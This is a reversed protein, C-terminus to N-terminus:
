GRVLRQLSPRLWLLLGVDRLHLYESTLQICLVLRTAQTVYFNRLIRLQVSYETRVTWYRFYGSSSIFRAKIEHPDRACCLQWGHVEERLSCEKECSIKGASCRSSEKNLGSKTTYCLDRTCCCIWRTQSAVRRRGTLMLRGRSRRLDVCFTAKWWIELVERLFAM